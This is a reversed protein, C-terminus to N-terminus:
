KGQAILYEVIDSVAKIKTAESDAIEVDFQSEVEMILEIADLSDAGLDDTLDSEMKIEDLEIGLEEAIIEKVKEFVM